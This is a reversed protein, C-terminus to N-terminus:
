SDSGESSGIEDKTIKETAIMMIFYHYITYSLGIVPPVNPRITCSQIYLKSNVHWRTILKDINRMRKWNAYLIQAIKM